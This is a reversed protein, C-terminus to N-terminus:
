VASPKKEMEKYMVRLSRAIPLMTLRAPSFGAIVFTVAAVIIGYFVSYVASSNKKDGPYHRAYMNCFSSQFTYLLIMLFVLLISM